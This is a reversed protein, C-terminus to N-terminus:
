LPVHRKQSFPGYWLFSRKQLRSSRLGALKTIGVEVTYLCQSRWDHNEAHAPTQSPLRTMCPDANSNSISTFIDMTQRTNISIRGCDRVNPAYLTSPGGNINTASVVAVVVRRTLHMM